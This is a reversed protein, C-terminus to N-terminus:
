SLPLPPNLVQFLAHLTEFVGEGDLVLYVWSGFAGFMVGSIKREKLVAEARAPCGAKCNVM